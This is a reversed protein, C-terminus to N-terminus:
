KQTKGTYATKNSDLTRDETSLYNGIARAAIVGHGMAVALRDFGPTAIDGGAFVGNASTSCDSGIRIHGSSDMDIQNLFIETNPTYGIKAILKQAPINVRTGDTTSRLIIEELRESGSMSEIEHDVLREIRENDDAQRILFAPARYRSSRNVLTVKRATKAREIAEYFASEGGGVVVIDKGVFDNQQQNGTRYVIDNSFRNFRESEPLVKLRYGTALFIARTKFTRTASRLTKENLDCEIINENTISHLGVKEAVESLQDQV